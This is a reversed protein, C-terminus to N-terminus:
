HPYAEALWARHSSAAKVFVARGDALRRRSAFGSTYGSGQSAAARVPSGVVAEIRERVEVRLETWSPRQATAAAPVTLPHLMCGLM